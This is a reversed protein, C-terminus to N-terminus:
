GIWGGCAVRDGDYCVVAQGPAVAAQPEDFRVELGPQAGDAADRVGAGPTDVARVEAAVPEANYRIKATCRTWGSPPDVLWNCDSAACGPALLAERPGVTVTNSAADKSVVYIPEGAAIGLGKRQGVTFHQHGAHQGLIRGSLDVITGPRVADPTRRAVL